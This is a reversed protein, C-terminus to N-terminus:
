RSGTVLAQMGALEDSRRSLRAHLIPKEVGDALEQITRKLVPHAVNGAFEALPVLVFSRDHMRPHPVVLEPSDIIRDDYLLLDLDLPRPANVESRVRGLQREVEHLFRLLEEPSRDTEIAAATNLFSPSGPPCDVPITEYFRSCAALRIGPEARLRRIAAHLNDARDGLNSGLGLYATAM